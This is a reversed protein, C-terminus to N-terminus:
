TWRLILAFAISWDNALYSKQFFHCSLSSAWSASSTVLVFCWYATPFSCLHSWNSWRVLFPSSDLQQTNCQTSSATTSPYHQNAPSNALQPMGFYASMPSSVFCNWVFHRVLSANASLCYTAMGSQCYALCSSSSTVAWGSHKYSCGRCQTDVM